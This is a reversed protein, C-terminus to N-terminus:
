ECRTMKNGNRDLKGLCFVRKSRSAAGGREPCIKPATTRGVPTAAPHSLSPPWKTVEDPTVAAAALAFMSHASDTGGRPLETTSHPCGIKVDNM